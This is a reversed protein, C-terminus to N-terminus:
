RMPGSPEFALRTPTSSVSLAYTTAFMRIMVRMPLTASSWRPSELSKTLPMWESPSRLGSRRKMQWKGSVRVIQLM